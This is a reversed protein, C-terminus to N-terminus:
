SRPDTLSVLEITAFFNTVKKLTNDHRESNFVINEEQKPSLITCATFDINCLNIIM